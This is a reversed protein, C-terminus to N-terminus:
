ENFIKHWLRRMFLFDFKWVGMDYEMYVLHQDGDGIEIGILGVWWHNDYKADEFLNILM